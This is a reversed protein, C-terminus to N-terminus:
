NVLPKDDYLVLTELSIDAMETPNLVRIEVFHNGPQLQYKWFLYFRRKTFETPWKATEILVGDIYMEAIYVYERNQNKAVKGMLAFGNGNFSFSFNNDKNISNNEIIIREKPYHDAFSIELPVTKSNQIKIKVTENLISGGGKEIM